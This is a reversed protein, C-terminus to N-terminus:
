GAGNNKSYNMYLWDNAKEMLDDLETTAVVLEDTLNNISASSVDEFEYRVGKPYKATVKMRQTTQTGEDFYWLSHVVKNRKAELKEIEALLTMLQSCLADDKVQVKFLSSLVSILRRFGLESTIAHGAEFYGGLLQSILFSMSFEIGAMQTTLKGIALSVDDPLKIERSM